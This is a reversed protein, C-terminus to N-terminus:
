RSAPVARVSAFRHLLAPLLTLDAILAFLLAAASLLGFLVSPVFDSFALLSFGLCIIATTYLLAKGVTAHTSAVAESAAGARREDLYRHVYHITDDVAIGMAVAAITITMFDLAIGLWGMLGLVGLSALINPLLAIAAVTVSRFIVAFALGLVVFVIGLTLIQSRYLRDLLDQYLVFLGTLQYDAPELGLDAFAARIDDLLQGRDLGETSDQIRASLRLQAASEDFFSGVLNERVAADLTWYIATLEYETLPKGDNIARALETFNVVSLVTGMAEFDELAAQMRQLRQVTEARLVLDGAPGGGPQNYVVDMPTSGGFERDIFALEQYIRTDTDFYDIFSNEVDLRLVGLIAVVLLVASAVAIAVGRRVALAAFGATARDALRGAPVQRERGLLCLVAPFLVLSVAITVAMAVIMMWGFAAVPKIGSVLLSAFGVSTTLGAYLSPGIKRSLTRSVLVAQTAGADAAAEERYQVILHVMLALTLILQLAIFNASIVTASLGLMGFLGTTIVVAAACAAVPLLVWRLRRFVLLLVLCIMAVIAIGFVALDSRVMRMLDVGLAEVGGLLVDADTAEAEAIERIATVTEVRQRRQAREAPGAKDQLRALEDAAEADWDAGDLRRAQLAVIRSQLDALAEDPTFLVQIATATQEANVLLGTYIPHDDLLARLREADPQLQDYQLADADLQTTRDVTGPGVLPVNLVSRVSAVGDLAAIQRTMARLDTITQDSWLPRDNPRYAILLFSESGFRQAVVRSEVYIRNGEDILTDASANIRFDRAGAGAALLVVVFVALVVRPHDIVGDLLKM